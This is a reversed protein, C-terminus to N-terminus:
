MIQLCHHTCYYPCVISEAVRCPKIGGMFMSVREKFTTLTVTVSVFALYIKKGIVLMTNDLLICSIYLPLKLFTVTYITIVVYEALFKLVQNGSVNRSILEPTVALFRYKWLAYWVSIIWL